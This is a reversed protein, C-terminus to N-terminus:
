VFLLGAAANGDFVKFFEHVDAVVAGHAVAADFGAGDVDVKAVYGYGDAVIKGIRTVFAECRGCRHAHCKQVGGTGFGDFGQAGGHYLGAEGRLVEGVFDAFKKWDTGFLLFGFGFGRDAGGWDFFLNDVEDVTRQGFAHGGFCRAGHEADFVVFADGDDAVGGRGFIGFGHEVEGAAAGFAQEALDSEGDLGHEPVDAYLGDQRGAIHTAAIRLVCAAVFSFSFFHAGVVADGEVAHRVGEVVEVDFGDDDTAAGAVVLEFFVAEFFDEGAAADDVDVFVQEFFAYFQVAHFTLLVEVVVGAVRGDFGHVGGM